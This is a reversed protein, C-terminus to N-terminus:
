FIEDLNHLENNQDYFWGSMPAQGHQFGDGSVFNGDLNKINGQSDYYNGNFPEQL